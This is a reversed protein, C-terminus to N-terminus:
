TSLYALAQREDLNVQVYDLDALLRPFCSAYMLTESTGLASLDELRGQFLQQSVRIFFSGLQEYRM